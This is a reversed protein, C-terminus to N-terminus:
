DRRAHLHPHQLHRHTPFQSTYMEHKPAAEAAKKKAVEEGKLQNKASPLPNTSLLQPPRHPHKCDQMASAQM